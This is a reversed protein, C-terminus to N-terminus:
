ASARLAAPAPATPTPAAGPISAIDESVYRVPKLGLRQYHRKLIAHQRDDDHIALLEAKTCGQDYACRVAYAGLLLSLGFTSPSTWGREQKENKTKSFVNGTNVSLIKM